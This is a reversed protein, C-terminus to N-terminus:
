RERIKLNLWKDVIRYGCEIWASAWEEVECEFPYEPFYAILTQTDEPVNNEDVASSQVIISFCFIEKATLQSRKISRSVSTM